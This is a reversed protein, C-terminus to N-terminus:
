LARATVRSNQLSAGPVVRPMGIAAVIAGVDAYLRSAYDDGPCSIDLTRQGRWWVFTQSGFSASKMCMLVRLRGLPMAHTADTFFRSAIAADITVNARTPGHVYEANGSRQLVIRYGPGNTSGTNLIVAADHPVPLYPVPQRAYAATGIVVIACVTAIVANVKM